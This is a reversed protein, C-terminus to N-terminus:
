QTLNGDQNLTMTRGDGVATATFVNANAGAVNFAYVSGMGIEVGLRTKLESPGACNTYELNHSYYVIEGARIMNLYTRAQSANQNKIMQNYGGIAISALISIIAITVLLEILTFAKKM